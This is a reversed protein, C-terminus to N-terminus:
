GVVTTVEYTGISFFASSGFTSVSACNFANFYDYNSLSFFISSNFFVNYSKVSSFLLNFYFISSLLFHSSLVLTTTLSEDYNYVEM